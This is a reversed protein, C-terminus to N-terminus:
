ITVWREAWHGLTEIVPELARGAETLEYSVRVPPGAIVTRRVVGESELERLRETLLRDSLGPVTAMIENFCQSGPMMAMIIAGSWRRGILEVAHHFRPCFRSMAKGRTRGGGATRKAPQRISMAKKSTM